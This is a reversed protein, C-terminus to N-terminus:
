QATLELTGDDAEEIWIVMENEDDFSFSISGSALPNRSKDLVTWDAQGTVEYFAFSLHEDYGIESGDAYIGGGEQNRLTYTIEHVPAKSKNVVTVTYPLADDTKGSVACGTAFLAFLVLMFSLLRIKRM